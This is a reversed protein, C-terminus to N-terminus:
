AREAEVAEAMSQAIQYDSYFGVLYDMARFYYDVKEQLAVQAMESCIANTRAKFLEIQEDSTFGKSRALMEIYKPTFKAAISEFETIVNSSNNRGSEINIGSNRSFKGASARVKVANELAYGVLATFDDGSITYGQPLSSQYARKAQAFDADGFFQQYKPMARLLAIVANKQKTEIENKQFAGVSNTKQAAAIIGGLIPYFEEEDIQEKTGLLHSNIDALYDTKQM